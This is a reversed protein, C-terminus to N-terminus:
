IQSLSADCSLARAGAWGSGRGEGRGAWAGARGTRGGSHCGGGRRTEGPMTAGYLRILDRVDDVARTGVHHVAPFAHADTVKREVPGVRVNGDHEVRLVGVDVADALKAILGEILGLTHQNM